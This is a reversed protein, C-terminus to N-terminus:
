KKCWVLRDLFERGSFIWVPVALILNFIPIVSFLSLFLVDAVNIDLERRWADKHMWFSIAVTLLYAILIEM